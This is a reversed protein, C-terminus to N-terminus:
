FILYLYFSLDAFILKLEDVLGNFSILSSYSISYCEIRIYYTPLFHLSNSLLKTFNFLKTM